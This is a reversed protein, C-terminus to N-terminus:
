FDFIDLDEEDMTAAIEEKEEQTVDKFTDVTFGGDVSGFPNDTTEETEEAVYEVLNVIQIAVPNLRIGGGKMDYERVEIQINVTSGNGIVPVTTLPTGKADFVRPKFTFKGVKAKQKCKVKFINKNEEDQKWPMNKAGDPLLSKLQKLFEKHAENKTDLVMDIQYIGDKDFATDPEAIFAWEVECTPAMIKTTTQKTM